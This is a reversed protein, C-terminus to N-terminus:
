KVWLQREQNQVAECEGEDILWTSLSSNFDLSGCPLDCYYVM